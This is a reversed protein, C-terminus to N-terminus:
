YGQGLAGSAITMLSSHSTPRRQIKWLPFVHRGGVCGQPVLLWGLEPREEWLQKTTQADYGCRQICGPRWWSPFSCPRLWGWCQAEGGGNRATFYFRLIAKLLLLGGTLWHQVKGALVVWLKLWSSTWRSGHVQLGLWTGQQTATLKNMRRWVQHTNKIQERREKIRSFGRGNKRQIDRRVKNERTGSSSSYTHWVRKNKGYRMQEQNM